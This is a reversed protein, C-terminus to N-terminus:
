HGPHGTLFLCVPPLILSVLLTLGLAPLLAPRVAGDLLEGDLHLQSGAVAVNDARPSCSNIAAAVAILLGILVEIYIHALPDREQAMQKLAPTMLSLVLAFTGFSTGILWGGFLGLTLIIILCGILNWIWPHPLHILTDLAKFDPQINSLKLYRTYIEKFVLATLFVMATGIGSKLGSEWLTWQRGLALQLRQLLPNRGKVRKFVLHTARAAAADPLLQWRDGSPLQVAPYVADFKRRMTRLADAVLATPPDQGPPPLPWIAQVSRYLDLALWWAVGMVTAILVGVPFDWDTRRGTCAKILMPAAIVGVIFLIWSVGDRRHPESGSVRLLFRVDHARLRERGRATRQQVLIAFMCVCFLAPIAWLWWNSFSLGDPGTTIGPTHFDKEFGKFYLWAVSIPVLLSGFTCAGVVPALEKARRKEAEPDDSKGGPDLLDALFQVALTSSGFGTVIGLLMGATLRSEPRPIRQVLQRAFGRAPGSNILDLGATLLLVTLLGPGVLKSFAYLLHVVPQLAPFIPIGGSEPPPPVTEWGIHTGFHLTLWCALLVCALLLAPVSRQLVFICLGAAIIPLLALLLSVLLEPISQAPLPQPTM